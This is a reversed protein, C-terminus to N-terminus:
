RRTSRQASMFLVLVVVFFLVIITIVIFTWNITGSPRPSTPEGVDPPPLADTNTPIPTDAQAVPGRSIDDTPSAPVTPQATLTLAESIQAQQTLRLSTRTLDAGSPGQPGGGGPPNTPDPPDTPPDTPPNTPPPDPTICNPNNSSPPCAQIMRLNADIPANKNEAVTYQADQLSGFRGLAILLVCLSLVTALLLFAAKFKGIM